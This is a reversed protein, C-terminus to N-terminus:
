NKSFIILEGRLELWIQNSKITKNLMSLRFLVLLRKQMLTWSAFFAYDFVNTRYVSDM